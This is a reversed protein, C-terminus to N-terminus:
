SAAESNFDRCMAAFQLALEIPVIGDILARGATKIARRTDPDDWGIIEFSAVPAAPPIPKRTKFDIVM